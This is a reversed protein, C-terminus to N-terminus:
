PAPKVSTITIAGTKPGAAPVTAQVLMHKGTKARTLKAVRFRDPSDLVLFEWHGGSRVFSGVATIKASRPNFGQSRIAKRVQALSVHNDPALRIQALGQNLHVHVTSVGPIKRVAVSM